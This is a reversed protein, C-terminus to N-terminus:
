DGTAASDGSTGTDAAADSMPAGSDGAAAGCANGTTNSGATWMGSPVGTCSMFDSATGCYYCESLQYSDVTGTCCGVEDASPCTSVIMGGAQTCASSLSMQDSSPLNTYGACSITNGNMVTACYLGPPTSGGGGGSSSSSCGAAALTGAGVAAIGALMLGVLSSKM